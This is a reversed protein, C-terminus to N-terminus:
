LTTLSYGRTRITVVKYNSNQKKLKQRVRAVLRDIAWDSVGFEKYEPWVVEVIDERECITDLNKKLMEYLMNEKKSFYQSHTESEEKKQSVYDIFLPSFVTMKGERKLIFGSKILYDSEEREKQSGDRVVESVEEKEAPTLSEWLEESQLMIREDELFLRLLDEKSTINKDRKENLILLALQLYQVHGGTLDLVSEEIEPKLDLKYWNKFTDYIVKGDKKEAPKLYMLHSFVSLSAKTFVSPAIKDLTQYGTFVYSLKQHTAERLGLLNDFFQQNVVDKMRDFRLLFITPSVGSMSIDFLAQRVSDILLFLDQTQISSVFLSEIKKKDVGPLESYNVVDVIRKLTLSWFPYIEREVLDNLDVPIYLFKEDKGIYTDVIDKHYMFFRLFNSIGVRKMGLLNVSHRHMVHQGLEKADEERFTLPYKAEIIGHDM